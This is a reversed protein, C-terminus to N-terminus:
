DSRTNYVNRSHPYVLKFYGSNSKPLRATLKLGFECWSMAEEMGIMTRYWANHFLEGPRRWVCIRGDSISIKFTSEDEDTFLKTSWQMTSMTSVTSQNKWPINNRSATITMCLRIKEMFGPLKVHAFWPERRGSPVTLTPRWRNSRWCPRFRLHGVYHRRQRTSPHYLSENRGLSPRLKM